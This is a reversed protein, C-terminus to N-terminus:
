SIVCRHVDLKDRLLAAAAVAEAWTSCVLALSNSGHRSSQGCVLMLNALGTPPLQSWDRGAMSSLPSQLQNM